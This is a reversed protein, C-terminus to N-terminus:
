QESERGCLGKKRSFKNIPAKKYKENVQIQCHPHNIILRFIIIL